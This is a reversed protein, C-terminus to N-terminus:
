NTPMSFALFVVGLAFKKSNKEYAGGFLLFGGDM